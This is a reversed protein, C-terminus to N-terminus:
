SMITSKEVNRRKALREGLRGYFLKAETVMWGLVSFVLLTFNGQDVNQIRLNYHRKKEKEHQQYSQKISLQQYSTANPDFIRVDFFCKQGNFWFAWASIDLRAQEENRASKKALDEGTLKILPPEVEVDVYM